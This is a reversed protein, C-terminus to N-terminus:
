VGGFKPDLKHFLRELWPFALFRFCIWGHNQKMERVKEVIEMVTEFSPRDSPVTEVSAGSACLLSASMLNEENGVLQVSAKLNGNSDSFGQPGTLKRKVSLVQVLQHNDQIM